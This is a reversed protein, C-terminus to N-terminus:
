PQGTVTKWSPSSAPAVSARQSKMVWRRIEAALRKATEFEFNSLEPNQHFHVFLAELNQDYDSAISRRIDDAANLMPAFALFSTLLSVPLAKM